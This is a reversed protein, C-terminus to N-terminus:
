WVDRFLRRLFAGPRLLWFRSGEPDRQKLPYDLIQRLEEVRSEQTGFIVAQLDIAPM